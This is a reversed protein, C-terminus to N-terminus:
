SRVAKGDLLVTCSGCIGKGCGYKTGTLGVIDRIVWLIPMEPSVNVEYIKGNVSLNTM